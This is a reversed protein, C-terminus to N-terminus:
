AKEAREQLEPKKKYREITAPVGVSHPHKVIAKIEPISLGALHLKWIKYSMKCKLKMIKDAKANPKGSPKEEQKIEANPKTEAVKPTATLLKGSSPMQATDKARESLIEESIGETQIKGSGAPKAQLKGGENELVEQGSGLKIKKGWVEAVLESIKFPSRKKKDKADMQLMVNDSGLPYAIAPTKKDIKRINGEKDIEYLPAKPIQRFENAM